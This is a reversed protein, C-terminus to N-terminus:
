WGGGGGGGGGGGSSGGGNGGSFGSSTGPSTSASSIASTFDGGFSSAFHSSDFTDWETTTFWAPTYVTTAGGAAAAAQALVGAFQKTWAQEVGLAIAYPLCKEFLAPTKQPPNLRQIRDSDVETLFLQFGDIQDMLRRGEPTFARLGHIGIGNVVILVLLTLMPLVGIMVGLVVLVVVEVATFVLPFLIDSPGLRRAKWNRAATLLLAVVAFSWGSLWFMIFGAGFAMPGPVAVVIAAATALSLLIGPVVWKGNKHFLRHDEQVKLDKVLISKAVALSGREDGLTIEPSNRFLSHLLNREDNPLTGDHEKLRTLQYTRGEQQITLCRKVALDVVNSVMARDDYGMHKLYRVAAPTLGPPPEYSVVIAGAAPAQVVLKRVAFYYLAVVVVGILGAVAPANDELMWRLRDSQTPESVLGKPFSVVITLGETAMLPLTTEFSVTSADNAAFTLNQSRSGKIGTYGTMKLDAANVAAPLTVTASVHDIPFDWGNGTVNWYLEDHDPFFGLERTVTYTIEYTYEGPDLSRDASGVRVRVGNSLSEQEYSERAGDKRVDLVHFNVTYEQGLRDKYRTPFDRFIGHRISVGESNVRIVEHVILSADPQIRIDSHFDLIREDALAPIALAILLLGAALRWARM